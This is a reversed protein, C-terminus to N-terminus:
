QTPNFINGHKLPPFFSFSFSFALAFKDVWSLIVCKENLREAGESHGMAWSCLCPSDTERGESICSPYCNPWAISCSYPM